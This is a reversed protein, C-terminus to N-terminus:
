WSTWPRTRARRRRPTRWRCRRVSRTGCRPCTAWSRTTAGSTASRRGTGRSGAVVEVAGVRGDGARVEYEFVLTNTGSGGVYSATHALTRRERDGLLLRITPTGGAVDVKDWDLREEPPTDPTYPQPPGTFRVRVRVKEGATWARGSEGARHGADGTHEYVELRRGRGRAHPDDRGAAAHRRGGGGRGARRGRGRGGHLRLAALRGRVAGAADVASRRVGPARRLPVGGARVSGAHPQEVVVPEPYRVELEVREGARWVGDSGPGNVVTVNRIRTSARLIEAPLGSTAKAFTYGRHNLPLTPQTTLDIDVMVATTTGATRTVTVTGEVSGAALTNADGDLTGNAVTATFEVAFPAGALVKARAQDTGVKEVTVTLPLTDGSNPNSNMSLAILAALGSFLGAPLSTLDNDHLRLTTLGTLGSFLGDPLSSLANSQLGLKTLNTLGSFVTGPLSSLENGYLSLNDLSTLGSFVGAPLSSLENEGLDLETLNTLGSFVTEPLSSLANGGLRLTTLGTLGSFVGAPLSSLENERLHLETLNTLGSFVTEPLSSLDNRYLHLITLATLGAFDGSQLSAINKGPTQLTGISALDAVTVAACDDVGSLRDLIADQVQQTRGCVGPTLTVPGAYAAAGGGGAGVARLAFIHATENTLGMVTFGDENAGGVASNAIQTWNAPYDASTKFRYEHRTVGSGSAPADWSLVVQGNGPAATFNTPADPTGPTTVASGNLRVQMRGAILESAVWAHTSGRNRNFGGLLGWGELGTGDDALDGHIFDTTVM